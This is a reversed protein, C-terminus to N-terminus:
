YWENNLISPIPQCPVHIIVTQVAGMDRGETYRVDSCIVLDRLGELNAYQLLDSVPPLVPSSVLGTQLLVVEHCGVYTGSILLLDFSTEM